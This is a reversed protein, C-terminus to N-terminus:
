KESDEAAQAKGLEMAENVVTSSLTAFKDALASYTARDPHVVCHEALRDCAVAFSKRQKPNPHDALSM